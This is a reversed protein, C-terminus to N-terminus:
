DRDELALNALKDAATNEKRAVHQYTVRRFGSELDRARNYLGRLNESNVEYQGSMQRVLLQSDSIINVEDAEVGKCAELARILASYEAQNNTIGDGLYESVEKLTEGNEDQILVGIGAPGPNGRSAGDIMAMVSKSMVETESGKVM